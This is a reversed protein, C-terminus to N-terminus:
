TLSLLVDCKIARLSLDTASTVLLLPSSSRKYQQLMSLCSADRPRKAVASSSRQLVRLASLFPDYVTKSNCWHRGKIRLREGSPAEM